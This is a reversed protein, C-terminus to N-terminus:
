LDYQLSAEPVCFCCCVFGWLPAVNIPMYLNHGGFDVSESQTVPQNALMFLKMATSAVDTLLQWLDVNPPSNENSKALLKLM